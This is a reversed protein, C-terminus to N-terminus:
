WMGALAVGNRTPLVELDRRMLWPVTLGVASGLVAGALVDTAYHKDAAIRLYATAAGLVGTAAWIYPESRYGRARAIM